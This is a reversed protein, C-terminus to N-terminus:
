LSDLTSGADDSPWKQYTPFSRPVYEPDLATEFQLVYDLSM